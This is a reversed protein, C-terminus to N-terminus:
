SAGRVLSVFGQGYGSRCGNWDRQTNKNMGALQGYLMSNENKPRVRSLMLQNQAEARGERM